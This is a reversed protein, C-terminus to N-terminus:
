MKIRCGNRYLLMKVSRRMVMMETHVKRKGNTIKRKETINCDAPVSLANKMVPEKAITLITKVLTIKSVIFM